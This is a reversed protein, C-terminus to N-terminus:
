NIHFCKVILTSRQEEYLLTWWWGNVNCAEPEWWIQFCHDYNQTFFNLFKRLAVSFPLICWSVLVLCFIFLSLLWM